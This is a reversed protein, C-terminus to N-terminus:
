KLSYRKNNGAYKATIRIRKKLEAKTKCGSLSKRIPLTLSLQM